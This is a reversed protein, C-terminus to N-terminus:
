QVPVSDPLDLRVGDSTITDPTFFGGAIVIAWTSVGRLARGLLENIKRLKESNTAAEPSVVITNHRQNSIWLPHPRSAITGAEHAKGFTATISGNGVAAITIQEINRRPDPDVCFKEGVMPAETGGLATFPVTIPVGTELVVSDISFVKKPSGDPAFVGVSGPSAPLAVIDAPQTTRYEIFDAGLLTRLADEIAERRNGRSIKMVAALFLQRERLTAKPSPVIQYDRELAALMEVAKLPNNNNIARDLQYQATALCMAQAYLRAQQLSGEEVNFANGFNEKLTNYISEGHSPKGSFAFHGFPTFSSFRPM